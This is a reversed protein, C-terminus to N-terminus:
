DPQQATTDHLQHQHWPLEAVSVTLLLLCPSRGAGALIRHPTM